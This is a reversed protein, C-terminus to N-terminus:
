AASRDELQVHIFTLGIDRTWGPLGREGLYAARATVARELAALMAAIEARTTDAWGIARRIPGITQSAKSLGACLVVTDSRAAISRRKTKGYVSKGAGSMGVVLTHRNDVEDRFPEGDEYVGLTLPADAISTGVEDPSLGPWPVLQGMVDRTTIVLTARRARSPDPIVR